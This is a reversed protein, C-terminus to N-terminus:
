ILKYQESQGVIDMLFLIKAETGVQKAHMSLLKRGFPLM